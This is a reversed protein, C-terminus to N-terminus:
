SARCTSIIQLAQDRAGLQILALVQQFIAHRLLSCHFEFTSEEETKGKRAEEPQQELKRLKLTFFALRLLEFRVRQEPTNLTTETPFTPIHTVTRAESRSKINDQNTYSAM